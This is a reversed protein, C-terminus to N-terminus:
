IALKADLLAAMREKASATGLWGKVEFEAIRLTPLYGHDPPLLDALADRFARQQHHGADHPFLPSTAKATGGSKQKPEDRCKPIWDHLDFAVPWNAPYRRLTMGRYHNFHLAEDVELVRPASGGVKLIGDVTRTNNFPMVEPLALGTLDHYIACLLPWRKGCGAKGPRDLWELPAAEVTGGTIQRVLEIVSKQIEPPMM